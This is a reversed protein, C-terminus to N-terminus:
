DNPSAPSTVLTGGSTSTLSGSNSLKGLSWRGGLATDTSLFHYAPRFLLRRRRWDHESFWAVDFGNQAAQRLQAHVSGTGESASAHLHMALVYANLNDASPPRPALPAASGLTRGIGVAGAVGLLGGLAVMGQLVRRRALGHAPELADEHEHDECM